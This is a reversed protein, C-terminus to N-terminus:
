SLLLYYYLITKMTKNSLGDYMQKLIKSFSTINGGITIKIEDDRPVQTTVFIGAFVVIFGIGIVLCIWSASIWIAKNDNHKSNRNAIGIMSPIVQAAIREYNMERENFFVELQENTPSSEFKRVMIAILSMIISLLLSAIGIFFPLYHYPSSLKELISFTGLGIILGTVITVYGILSGAKSDLDRTRQKEGDYDRKVLDLILEYRNNKGDAKYSSSSGSHPDNEPTNM